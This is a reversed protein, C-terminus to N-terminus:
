RAPNESNKALHTIKRAVFWSIPIALVFGALASILIARGGAYGASLAATVFIGMITTSIMFHLIFTLRGQM